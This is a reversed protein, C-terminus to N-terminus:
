RLPNRYVGYSNPSNNAKPTSTLQHLLLGCQYQAARYLHRDAPPMPGFDAISVTYVGNTRADERFGISITSGTTFLNPVLHLPNARTAINFDVPKSDNHLKRKFSVLFDHRGM